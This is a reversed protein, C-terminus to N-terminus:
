ARKKVLGDDILQQFHETFTQEVPHYKVGLALSRQHDFQMPHGVNRRVFDRTIPGMLPGIAWVVFKPVTMRPFPYKKGFSTSLIKSIDLLSLSDAVVLYRGQAQPDFAALMHAHAVDRVDVVGSILDPVGTKLRGDGMSILTDISASHSLTTLSPGFVLGPNITVLEWRHQEKQMRWAEREAAVKSYNYPNHNVSSSENWHTENLRYEPLDKADINDGYVAVVSSTLIVKQVTEKRNVAELVNRTGEVAPRVLAENADDFGDLLFPSATHIVIGCGQMAEDFSGQKLLDAAFLRLVGSQNEASQKLHRVSEEKNPNRVTAHVTHGAELLYRILWSAIYGSAGTVLIPMTKLAQSTMM